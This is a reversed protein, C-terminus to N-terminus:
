EGGKRIAINDILRTSTTNVAICARLEKGPEFRHVPTLTLADVFEIYQVRFGPFSEVMGTVAVATEASGLSAFHESAWLLAKYIVPAAAREEPSLHINRSSMALGDSERLTACGVIDVPIVSRRAWERIIALQQFDKEGFYARHPQVINFLRSVVNVVGQFHGPRFAGEMVQELTGFHMNVGTQDPYVEKVEPEFLLDCGATRLMRHDSDPTRPYRALDNPDNFQTPNVFISAVTHNNEAKSREILSLHGAHLAGMTPVFGITEGNKRQPLIYDRVGTIKGTIIMITLFRAINIL